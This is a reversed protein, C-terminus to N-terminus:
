QPSTLCEGTGPDCMPSVRVTGDLLSRVWDVFRVGQVAYTYTIDQNTICHVPGGPMFNYFNPATAELSYINSLLQRAWEPAIQAFNEATVMRGTQLAYFAVQTQDLFTNYQAFINNPFARALERMHFTTNYRQPTVDVFAPIFDPLSAYVNWLALGEWARPTVGTAADSLLVVRQDAYNRMINAAHFLAGYGGASCGTVFVQEPEPYNAYTWDLAASANAFGTFNVTVEEIPLGSEPPVPLTVAPTSGAHVDGTCYPIFVTNYDRVPNEENDFDFFGSTLGDPETENVEFQSAFQGRAGCTFGDWCAGGGEFYIMLNATPESAPRVFFSYDTDYLCRAGEVPIQTWEGVPLDGLTPMDQALAPLAALGISFGILWKKM